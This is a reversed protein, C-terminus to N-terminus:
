EVRLVRAAAFTAALGMALLVLIPVTIDTLDRGFSILQHLATMAWGTPFLHAVKKLPESVIELPWWCGGLSAMALTLLVGVNSARDPDRFFSGILIGLPAVALAYILLLVYVSGLNALGLDFIQNGVAAVLILLTIQMAAVAFRGLTKGAVLERHSIPTTLLRHLRRNVRDSTVSAAGYTLTLLLVFMVVNGPVAQAFGGPIMRAEGAFRTEVTVLDPPRATATFVTGDIPSDATDDNSGDAGGQITRAEVLRAIVRSIAAVIRAQAVLAAQESTGLDKELRVTVQEGALVKASLDQPLVLTRIKDETTAKAAPELEVLLLREDTLEQRLATAVPGRDEDILTLHVQGDGTQSGGGALGFFTAFLIPLLLMWLLASRDQLVLRLEQRAIVSISSM